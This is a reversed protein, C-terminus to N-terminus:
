DGYVEEMHVPTGRKACEQAFTQKIEAMLDPPIDEYSMQNGGDRINRNTFMTSRNVKNRKSSLKLALTRVPEKSVVFHQHWWWDPPVIMSGPGWYEKVREGGDPWM